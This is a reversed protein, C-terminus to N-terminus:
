GDMLIKEFVVLCLFDFVLRVIGWCGHGCVAGECRDDVVEVAGAGEWGWGRQFGFGSVVGTRNALFVSELNATRFDGGFEHGATM